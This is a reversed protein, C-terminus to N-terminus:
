DVQLAGECSLAKELHEVNADEPLWARDYAYLLNAPIKGTSNKDIQDPLCHNFDGLLIVADVVPKEECDQNTTCLLQKLVAALEKQQHRRTKGKDHNIFAMHTSVVATRGFKAWLMGKLVFAERSPDIEGCPKGKIRFPIFAHDDPCKSACMLLGSDMLIPPMRWFLSKKFDNVADATWVLNFKASIYNAFSPKPDYLVNRLFPIWMQILITFCSIILMAIRNYIKYLFFERGPHVVQSSILMKEIAYLCCLFPYFLGARFAWLEQGVYVTICDGKSNRIPNELLAACYPARGLFHPAMFPILFTNHTIVNFRTKLVKSPSKTLTRKGVPM